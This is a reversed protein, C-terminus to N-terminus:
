QHKNRDNTDRNPDTAGFTRKEHTDDKEGNDNHMFIIHLREKVRKVSDDVCGNANCNCEEDIMQWVLEFVKGPFVLGRM